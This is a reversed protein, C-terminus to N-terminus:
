RNMVESGYTTVPKVPEGGSLCFLCCSNCCLCNVIALKGGLVLLRSHPDTLINVIPSNGYSHLDINTGNYAVKDINFSSSLCGTFFVWPFFDVICFFTLYFPCVQSGLHM